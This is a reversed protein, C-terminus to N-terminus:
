GLGRGHPPWGQLEEGRDEGNELAGHRPVPQWFNSSSLNSPADTLALPNPRYLFTVTAALSPTFVFTPMTIQVKVISVYGRQVGVMMIHLYRFFPTVKSADQQLDVLSGSLEFVRTANVPEAQAFDAAVRHDVWKPFLPTQFHPEAFDESVRFYDDLVAADSGAYNEHQM